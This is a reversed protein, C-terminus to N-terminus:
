GLSNESKNTSEKSNIYNNAKEFGEKTVNIQDNLENLLDERRTIEKYEASRMNDNDCYSANMRLESIENEMLNSKDEMLDILINVDDGKYSGLLSIANGECKHLILKSIKGQSAPLHEGIENLLILLASKTYFNYEMDYISNDEYPNYMHKILSILRDQVHGDLDMIVNSISNFAESMYKNVNKSNPNKNLLVETAKDFAGKEIDNLNSSYETIATPNLDTNENALKYKEIKAFNKKLAYERMKPNIDKGHLMGTKTTQLSTLVGSMMESFISQSNKQILLQEFINASSLGDRDKKFGSKNEFYNTFNNAWSSLYLDPNQEFLKEELDKILLFATSESVLKEKFHDLSDNENFPMRGTLHRTSKVLEATWEAYRQIPNDITKRSPIAIKDNLPWYCVNDGKHMVNLSQSRIQHTIMVDVADDLSEINSFDVFSADLDRIACLDNLKRQAQESFLHSISSVSWVPQSIFNVNIKRELRHVKKDYSTPKRNSNHSNQWKVGKENIWYETQKPVFISTLSKKGKLKDTIFNIRQPTIPTKSSYDIEFDHTLLKDLDGKSIVISENNDKSNEIAVGLIAQNTFGTFIYREDKSLFNIFKEGLNLHRMWPLDFNSQDGFAMKHWLLIIDRKAKSLGVDAQRRYPDIADNVTEIWEKHDTVSLSERLDKELAMVMKENCSALLKPKELSFIKLVKEKVEDPEWDRSYLILSNLTESIKNVSDPLLYNKRKANNYKRDNM